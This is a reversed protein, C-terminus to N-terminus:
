SGNRTNTDYNEEELLLDYLLEPSNIQRKEENIIVHNYDENQWFETDYVWWDLPTGFIPNTDKLDCMTSLLQYYSNLWENGFWEPNCNLVEVINDEQKCLEAYRNIFMCFEEKTLRM